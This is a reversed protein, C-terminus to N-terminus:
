HLTLHLPALTWLMLSFGADVAGWDLVSPRHPLPDHHRAQSLSFPIVNKLMHVSCVLNCAMSRLNPRGTASMKELVPRLWWHMHARVLVAMMGCDHLSM